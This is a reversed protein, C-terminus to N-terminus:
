EVSLLLTLYLRLPMYIHSVLFQIKKLVERIPAGISVLDRFQGEAGDM